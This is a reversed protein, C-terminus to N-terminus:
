SHGRGAHRTPAHAARPRARGRAGANELLADAVVTRYQVRMHQLSRDIAARGSRMAVARALLGLGRGVRTVDPSM